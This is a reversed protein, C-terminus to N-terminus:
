ETARCSCLYALLCGEDLARSTAVHRSLGRRKDGSRRAVVDPVIVSGDLGVLTECRYHRPQVAAQAM